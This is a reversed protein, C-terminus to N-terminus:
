ITTDAVSDAQLVFPPAPKQFLKRAYPDPPFGPDIFDILEQDGAARAVSILERRLHLLMQQKLNFTEEFELSFEVRAMFADSLLERM